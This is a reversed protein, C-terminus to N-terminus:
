VWVAAAWIGAIVTPYFTGAFGLGRLPPSLHYGAWFLVRMLAFSLGLAIAVAGGLTVAAFPWIALALVLQEVTNTLVRQDIEAPSGPAFPEGDIIADDFFRRQALRGIILALVLGPALFAGPLAIPAPIYPLGLWQPLGTVVGGWLAGLAIGILIQPRKSRLM